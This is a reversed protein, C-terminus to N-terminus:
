QKRAQSTTGQYRVLWITKSADDTVLLSGDRAVTVGVPRGWVQGEATVFGTLFDEYEGTSKGDKLPVRVVEYGSRVAKNWSGHEAAFISNKYEPPFQDGEYFTLELSANHPQLLVDPVIVRDKLESHKGAFHPDQHSGTYFWPWGYFGGEQVHTIYDPVLNDGLTDRENVSAWLQGTEPNVAIGVPNRIGYAFVREGSGDPNYELIDARRQEASNGDVDDVNSHSGVSVYLKSGDRSFALDRTWHGGGALKGGGPINSVITEAPGSAKLDGNKYPFRIVSDTNAIYIYQPNLGPPYFAIGFPQKLGTAFVETQEPKGDAGIGRFLLIKNAGNEATAEAVFFDGNPATRILRPAELSSAYLSVTFGPLTRPIAGEPRPVLKPHNTSSVTAFPQPLDAATIRRFVGPQEDQYTTFAASGTRVPAPSQASHASVLASILLSGAALALITRIRM